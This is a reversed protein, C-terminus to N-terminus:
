GLESFPLTCFFIVVTFIAMWYTSILPLRLNEAFQVAEVDTIEVYNRKRVYEVLPFASILDGNSMLTPEGAHKWLVPHKKRSGRIFMWSTISEAILCLFFIGGTMWFLTM